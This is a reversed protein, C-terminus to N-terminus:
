RKHDENYSLENKAKNTNACMHNTYKLEFDTLENKPKEDFDELFRPFVPLNISYSPFFPFSQLRPINSLTLHIDIHNKDEQVELKINDNLGLEPEL